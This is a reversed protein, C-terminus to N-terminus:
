FIDEFGCLAVHFFVTVEFRAEGTTWNSVVALYMEFYRIILVRLQLLLHLKLRAAAAGM